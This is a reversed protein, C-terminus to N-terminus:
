LNDIFRVISYETVILHMIESSLVRHAACVFHLVQERAPNHHRDVAARLDVAVTVHDEPFAHRLWEHYKHYTLAHLNLPLWVDLIRITGDEDIEVQQGPAVRLAHLIDVLGDLLARWKYDLYWRTRLMRRHYVNVLTPLAPVLMAEEIAAVLGALQLRNTREADNVHCETMHGRVRAAILSLVEARTRRQFEVVPICVVVAATFVHLTWWYKNECNRRFDYAWARVSGAPPHAHELDDGPVSSMMLPRARALADMGSIYADMEDLKDQHYGMLEAEDLGYTAFMEARSVISM